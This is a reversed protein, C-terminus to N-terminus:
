PSALSRAVSSRTTQDTTALAVFTAPKESSPARKLAFAIQEEPRLQRLHSQLAALMRDMGSQPRGAISM